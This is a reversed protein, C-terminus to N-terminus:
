DKIALPDVKAEMHGFQRYDALLRYLLNDTATCSTAARTEDLEDFYVAVDVPVSDRNMRYKSYLDILYGQDGGLSMSTPRDWGKRSFQHPKIIGKFLDPPISTMFNNEQHIAFEFRYRM